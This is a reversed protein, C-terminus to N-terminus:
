IFIYFENGTSYFFYSFFFILNKQFSTFDTEQEELFCICVFNCLVDM